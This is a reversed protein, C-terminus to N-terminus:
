VKLSHSSRPPQESLTGSSFGPTAFCWDDGGQAGRHVNSRIGHRRRASSLPGIWRMSRPLRYRGSRRGYAQALPRRVVPQPMLTFAALLEQGAAGPRMVCRISHSARTFSQDNPEAQLAPRLRRDGLVQLIGSDVTPASHRRLSHSAQPVELCTSGHHASLPLAHALEYRRSMSVGPLISRMPCRIWLWRLRLTAPAPHSHGCRTTSSAV